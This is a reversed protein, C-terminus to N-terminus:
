KVRWLLWGGQTSNVRFGLFFRKKLRTKLSLTHHQWTSLGLLIVTVTVAGLGSGVGLWDIVAILRLFWSVPGGRYSCEDVLQVTYLRTSHLIKFM